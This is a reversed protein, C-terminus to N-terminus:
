QCPTKPQLKWTGPFSRRGLRHSPCSPHPQRPPHPGTRIRSSSGPLAKPFRSPTVLAQCEQTMRLANQHGHFFHPLPHLTRRPFTINLGHFRDEVLDGLVGVEVLGGTPGLEDVHVRSPPLEVGRRESLPGVERSEGSRFRRRSHLTRRPFPISIGHHNFCTGLEDVEDERDGTGPVDTVVELNPDVGSGLAFNV